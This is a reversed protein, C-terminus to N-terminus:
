GQNTTSFYETIHSLQSPPPFQYAALNLLFNTLIGGFHGFWEATLKGSVLWQEINLVSM